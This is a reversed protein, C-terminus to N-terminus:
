TRPPSVIMEPELPPPAVNVCDNTISGLVFTTALPAPVAAAALPPLSVMVSDTAAPSLTLTDYLSLPPESCADSTRTVM